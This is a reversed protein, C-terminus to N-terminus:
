ELDIRFSLKERPAVKINKKKKGDVKYYQEYDSTQFFCPYILHKGENILNQWSGSKWKVNSGVKVGMQDAWSGPTVEVIQADLSYPYVFMGSDYMKYECVIGDGNKNSTGFPYNKGFMYIMDEFFNANPSSNQRVSYTLQWVKPISKNGVRKADLVSLQLYVDSTVYNKMQGSTSTITTSSENFHGTGSSRYHIFNGNSWGHGSMSHNETGYADTTSTVIPEYVTEIKSNIDQTLYIYLDPNETVHALGKEELRRSFM